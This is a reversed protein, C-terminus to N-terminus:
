LRPKHLEMSNYQNEITRIQNKVDEINNINWVRRKGFSIKFDKKSLGNVRLIEDSLEKM